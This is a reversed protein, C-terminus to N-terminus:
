HSESRIRERRERVKKKEGQKEGDAEDKLLRGGQSTRTWYICWNDALHYYLDWTIKSQLKNFCLFPTWIFPNSFVVRALLAEEQVPM